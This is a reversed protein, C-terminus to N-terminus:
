GAYDFPRDGVLWTAVLAEPVIRDEEIGGESPRRGLEIAIQLCGDAMAALRECRQAIIQTLSM